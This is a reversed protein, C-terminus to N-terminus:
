TLGDAGVRYLSGIRILFNLVTVSLESPIGVDRVRFM